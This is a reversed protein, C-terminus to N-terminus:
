TRIRRSFMGEPRFAFFVLAIGLIVYNPAASGLYYPVFVEVGGVLLGGVLPAWVTGTGGVVLALFGSLTWSLGTEFGVGAKPAYLLGAVAAVLGGLVFATLRARSVPLGLVAAADKNDGIARLLRGTGGLRLWAAVALFVVVTVALLVAASPQLFADGIEIADFEVLLQGPLQRRGFVFGAGQEIAFLIAAVAVLASLESGGSRAEIPRVVLLETAAALVVVLLVAIAVAPWLSMEKEIVLWTTGLGAVMAYPGLAFNFFGAGELILLYSLAILGFFCGVEAASLWLQIDTM